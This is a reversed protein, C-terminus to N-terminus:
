KNNPASVLLLAEQIGSDIVKFEPQSSSLDVGIGQASDGWGVLVAMQNASWGITPYGKLIPAVGKINVQSGNTHFITISLDSTESYVAIYNGDPSFLALSGNSVSTGIKRKPASSSGDANITQVYLQNKADRYLIKDGYCGLASVATQDLEIPTETKDASATFVGLPSHKADNGLKIYAFRRTQECFFAHEWSVDFAVPRPFDSNASLDHVWLSTKETQNSAQFSLALPSVWKTNFAPMAIYKTGDITGLEPGTLFSLRTGDKYVSWFAIEYGAGTGFFQTRVFAIRNGDSSWVPRAAYDKDNAVLKHPAPNAPDLNALWIETPYLKGFVGEYVGEFTVGSRNARAYAVQTQDPSIGLSSIARNDVGYYSDSNRQANVIPREVFAQDDLTTIQPQNDIIQVMKLQLTKNVKQFFVSKAESALTYSFVSDALKQPTAGSTQYYWLANNKYYYLTKVSANVTPLATPSSSVPQITTKVPLPSEALTSVPAITDPQSTPSVQVPRTTTSVPTTTATSIIPSTADGCAATLLGTLIVVLVVLIHRQM